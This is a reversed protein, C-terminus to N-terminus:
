SLFRCILEKGSEDTCRISDHLVNKVIDHDFNYRSKDFVYLNQRSCVKQHCSTCLWGDPKEFSKACRFDSSRENCNENDETLDVEIAVRKSLAEGIPVLNVDVVHMTDDVDVLSVFHDHGFSNINCKTWMIRGITGANPSDLNLPLLIRNLDQRLNYIPIDPYVSQICCGLVNAAQHFQWIGSFEGINTLNLMEKKYYKVVSDHDLSMGARYFSCYTAYVSPCDDNNSHPFDYGRCLYDHNLYLNSNKVGEVVIRVRMEVFHSESGYVLRSLAHYFCNGDGTTFVPFLKEKQVGVDDPILYYATADRKDNRLQQLGRFEHTLVPIDLSRVCVELEEFSICANMCELMRNWNVPTTVNEGKKVKESYKGNTCKHAVVERNNQYCYANPPVSPKRSKGVRLCSHCEKCIYEILSKKCRFEKSLVIKGPKREVDYNKKLFLVVKKRDTFLKHCCTCLFDTECFKMSIGNSPPPKGNRLSIHCDRCVYMLDSDTRDVIKSFAKYVNEFEFNYDNQTFIVLHSRRKMRNCVVCSLKEM